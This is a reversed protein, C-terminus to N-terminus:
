AATGEQTPHPRYVHIRRRPDLVWRGPPLPIDCARCHTTDTTAVRRHKGCKTCTTWHRKPM